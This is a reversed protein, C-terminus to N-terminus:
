LINEIKAVHCEHCREYDPEHNSPEVCQDTDARRSRGRYSEDAQEAHDESLEDYTADM